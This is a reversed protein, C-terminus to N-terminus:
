MRQFSTDSSFRKPIIKRPQEEFSGCFLKQTEVQIRVLFLPNVTGRSVMEGYFCIDYDVSSIM